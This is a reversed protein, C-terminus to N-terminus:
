YLELFSSKIGGRKALIGVSIAATGNADMKGDTSLTANVVFVHVQM